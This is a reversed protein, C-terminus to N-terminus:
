ELFDRLMTVLKERDGIECEWLTLSRWGQDRLAAANRRDREINRTIKSRWYEANTKPARAGRKCDHGHWFCGHVFIVKRRGAFVIDPSGPLDKRHLRYRYGLSFLLRRVALEPATNASKVARMIRSRNADPTIM